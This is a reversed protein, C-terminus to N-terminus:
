ERDSETILNDIMSIDGSVIKELLNIHSNIDIVKSKQLWERAGRQVFELFINRYRVNHYIKLMQLNSYTNRELFRFLATKVSADKFDYDQVFKNFARMLNKCLNGNISGEENKSEQQSTCSIRSETHQNEAIHDEESKVNEVKLSKQTKECEKKVTTNEIKKSQFKTLQINNNQLQTDNLTQIIPLGQTTQNNADSKIYKWSTIIKKPQKEQINLNSPCETEKTKYLINSKNEGDKNKHKPKKIKKEKFTEKKIELTNDNKNTELPNYFSNSNDQIDKDIPKLQYQSLSNLRYQKYEAGLEERRREQINPLLTQNVCLPNKQENNISKQHITESNNSYQSIGAAEHLDASNIDITQQLSIQSPNPGIIPNRIGHQLQNPFLQMPNQSMQLFQNQPIFYVYQQPVRNVQNVQKFLLPPQYM